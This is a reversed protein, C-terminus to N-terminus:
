QAYHTPLAHWATCTSAIPSRELSFQGPTNGLDNAACAAMLAAAPLPEIAGYM